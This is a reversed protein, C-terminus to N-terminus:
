PCHIPMKRIDRKWKEAGDMNVTKGEIIEGQQGELKIGVKKEREIRKGVWWREKGESARGEEDEEIM